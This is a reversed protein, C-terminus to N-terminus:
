KNPKALETHNTDIFGKGSFSLRLNFGAAVEGAAM